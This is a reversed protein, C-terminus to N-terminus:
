RGTSSLLHSTSLHVRLRFLLSVWPPRSTCFVSSAGVRYFSSLVPGVARSRGGSTGSTSLSDEALPAVTSALAPAKSRCLVRLQPPLCGRGFLCAVSQDQFFLFPDRVDNPGLSAGRCKAYTGNVLSPLLSLLTKTFPFHGLILFKLFRPMHDTVLEKFGLNVRFFIARKWINEKSNFFSFLFKRVPSLSPFVGARFQFCHGPGAAKQSGRAIILYGETQRLIEGGRVLWRKERQTWFFRFVGTNISLGNSHLDNFCMAFIKGKLTLLLVYRPFLFPWCSDRQQVSFSAFLFLLSPFCRPFFSPPGMGQTM